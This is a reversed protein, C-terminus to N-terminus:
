VGGSCDVQAAHPAGARLEDAPGVAAIRDGRVLVAVGERVGADAMERGRRARAPGACTVVQRAGVFLLETVATPRTTELSETTVPRGIGERGDRALAEAAGSGRRPLRLLVRQLRDARIAPLGELSPRDPLRPMAARLGRTGRPHHQEWEPLAGAD